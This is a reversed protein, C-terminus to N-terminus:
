NISNAYLFDLNGYERQCFSGYKKSTINNIYKNNINNKNRRLDETDMVSSNVTQSDYNKQKQIMEKKNLELHQIKGIYILNPKGLGQRKEKILCVDLLQKFAKTATKDSLDLLEQVELRTFILYIEGNEDYWNNKQSLNMRNLLFAYLLKADSNIKGKYLPNKFLEQPVQYFSHTFSESIKYSNFEM